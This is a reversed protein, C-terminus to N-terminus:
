CFLLVAVASLVATETRLISKGLSLFSTGNRGAEDLEEPSFGGEPGIFLAKKGETNKVTKGGRPDLLILNGNERRATSL